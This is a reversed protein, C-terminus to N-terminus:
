LRKGRHRRRQRPLGSRSHRQRRTDQPFYSVDGDPAGTVNFGIGLETNGIASKFGPHSNLINTVEDAWESTLFKVAM